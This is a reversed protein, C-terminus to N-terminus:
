GGRGAASIVWALLDVINTNFETDMKICNSYFKLEPSYPLTETAAVGPVM